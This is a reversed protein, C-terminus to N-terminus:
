PLADLSPGLKRPLVVAQLELFSDDQFVIVITAVGRVDTLTM